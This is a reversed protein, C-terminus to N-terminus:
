IKLQIIFFFQFLFDYVIINGGFQILNDNLVTVAIFQLKNLCKKNMFLYVHKFSKPIIWSITWMVLFTFFSQYFLRIITWVLPNYLLETDYGVFDKYWGRMLLWHVKDTVNYNSINEFQVFSFNRSNQFTKSKTTRLLFSYLILFVYFM